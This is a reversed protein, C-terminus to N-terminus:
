RRRRNPPRSRCVKRFNDPVHSRAYLPWCNHL